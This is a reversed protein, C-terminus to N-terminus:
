WIEYRLGVKVEHINIGSATPATEDSGFGVDYHTTFKYGLDMLWRDSIRYDAGVMASLSLLTSNSEVERTTTGVWLETGPGGSHTAIPCDEGVGLRCRDLVTREFTVRALGAGGGVYPRLSGWSGVSYYASAQISTSTLAATDATGCEGDFPFDCAYYNSSGNFAMGSYQTVSIDGRLNDNFIYGAGVSPSVDEFLSIGGIDGSGGVGYSGTGAAHFTGIDGRLYWGSGYEVPTTEPVDAYVPDMDASRASTAAGMAAACLALMALIPAASRLYTPKNVIRVRQVALQFPARQPQQCQRIVGARAADDGQM